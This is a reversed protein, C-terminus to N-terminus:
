LSNQFFSNQFIFLNLFLIVVVLVNSNQFSTAASNKEFMRSTVSKTKNTSINLRFLYRIHGGMSGMKNMNRCPFKQLMHSYDKKSYVRSWPAAAM